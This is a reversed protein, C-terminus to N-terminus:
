NCESNIDFVFEQLLEDLTIKNHGSFNLKTLISQKNEKLLRKYENLYNQSIPKYSWHWEEPQYGGKRGEGYPRCFGYKPMNEQLWQYLIKGQKNEKFFASSVSTIDIDTGWHHRSSGPMSSYKLIEKATKQEDKLKPYLADWKRQWIGNQYTYNRTASVVVFPIDPHQQKFDHYAKILQETPEKQLYMGPKNVPLETSDLSIFQSDTKENFQGILKDLPITNAMTIFPLTLLILLINKRM